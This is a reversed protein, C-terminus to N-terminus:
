LSQALRVSIWRGEQDAKGKAAPEDCAFLLRTTEEAAPPKVSSFVPAFTKGRELNNFRTEADFCDTEQTGEPRGLQEWLRYAVLAIEEQTPM